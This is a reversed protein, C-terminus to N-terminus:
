RLRYTIWQPQNSSISMERKVLRWTKGERQRQLYIDFTNKRQTVKQQPLELNLNYTGQLHYAPLNGLYVPELTKVNIQNIDLKPSSAKLTQSLNQTEQQLQLAIAKQVIEGKPALEKPPTPSSCATLIIVLIIFIISSYSKKRM